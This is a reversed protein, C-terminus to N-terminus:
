KMCQTGREHWDAPKRRFMQKSKDTPSCTANQTRDGKGSNCLPVLLHDTPSGQQLCDCVQYVQVPKGGMM